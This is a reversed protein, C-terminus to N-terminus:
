GSSHYPKSITQYFTAAVSCGSGFRSGKKPGWPAQLLGVASAREEADATEIAAQAFWWWRQRIKLLKTGLSETGYTDYKVM